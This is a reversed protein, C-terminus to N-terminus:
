ISLARFGENKAGPRIGVPDWFRISLRPQDIRVARQRGGFGLWAPWRIPSPYLYLRTTCRQQRHWVRAPDRRNSAVAPTPVSDPCPGMPRLYPVAPKLARKRSLRKRSYSLLVALLGHQDRDSCLCDDSHYSSGYQLTGSSIPMAPSAMRSCCIAATLGTAM